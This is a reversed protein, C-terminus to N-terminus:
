HQVIVKKTSVSKDTTITLFYVGNSLEATSLNIEKVGDTNMTRNVVQMNFRDTFTINCNGSTEENLQVKVFQNAPNPYIIPSFPAAIIHFEADSEDNLGSLSSKVRVKFIDGSGGNVSATWIITSGVVNHQITSYTGSTMNHLDVDVPEPINDIWSILYPTGIEWYEGGNPQLVDIDGGPPTLAVDFDEDSIGSADAHNAHSYIKIRYTSEIPATIPITWVLTSGVVNSEILYEGFSNVYYVDVTGSIDDEWSILYQSERVWTIGDVNPQLLHIYSNIPAYSIIFPETSIGSASNYSVKVKYYTGSVISTANIAWLYTSGPVNSAINKVLTTGDALYLDITVNNEAINDEWSILYTNGILWNIGTQNPQYVLINAQPPANTIYFPLESIGYFSSNNVSIVKIKYWGTAQVQPINWVWTSGEVSPALETEVNAGDVLKIKVPGSFNDIWSILNSTGALWTLTSYENSTPQLVTLYYPAGAATISFFADSEDIITETALDTVRIKYQSGVIAFSNNILWNFSGGSANAVITNSINTNYNHLEIKVNGVNGGWTILNTSGIAWSYTGTNPRLVRVAKSVGFTNDTFDFAETGKRIKIKYDGVPTTLPITWLYHNTPVNTEPLINSIFITGAANYLDIIVNGIATSAWTIDVQNGAAYPGAALSVTTQTINFISNSEDIAAGKSVRIKYTGNNLSNPITWPFPSTQGVPVGLDHYTGDYYEIKTDGSATSIWTINHTTQGAWVESGNPSTVTTQTITFAVDSYDICEGVTVKVRYNTGAAISGPITWAYTSSPLSPAAAAITSVLNAGDYLEILATTAPDSEDWTINQTTQGAWIVATNPASIITRIIHFPANSFDSTNTKVIKIKYDNTAINAPIVWAHPSTLAGSAINGGIQADGAANWLQITTNGPENSTWTISHTSQGAWTEGGNPSTVTTQYVTFVANSIDTGEGTQTVRIKYNSGGPITNPLTFTCTEIYDGNVIHLTTAGDYLEITTPYVVHLTNTWTVTVDTQGYWFEGGNPATVTVVASANFSLAFMAITLFALNRFQLIMKM